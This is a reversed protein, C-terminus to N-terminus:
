DDVPDTPNGEPDLPLKMSYHSGKRVRTGQGDVEVNSRSERMKQARDFFAKDIIATHHDESRLIKDPSNRIRKM